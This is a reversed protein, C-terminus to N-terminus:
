IHSKSKRLAARASVSFGFFGVTAFFYAIVSAIAAGVGGYLPILFLNLIINCIAGACQSQLSLPYNSSLVFWKSLFARNFIFLCGIIHIQLIMVSPQYDAGYILTIATDAFLQTTFILLIAIVSSVIFLQRKLLWYKERANKYLHVLKPMLVNAVLAPLVYWFESLKAAAAYYAVDEAGLMSGLMIQDIKLYIVAALGSLVLWKSQYLLRKATLQMSRSSVSQQLSNKQYRYLLLYGLGLLIYELGTLFVWVVMSQETIIAILLLLKATFQVTIRMLLTKLVQKKSLFYFEIINLANGVQLAILFACLWAQKQEFNVLAVVLAIPLILIACSVRIFIASRLYHERNNPYLSFYKGCINNLGMQTFILFLSGFAIIISYSGFLEPGAYRALLISNVFSIALIIFRETILLASNVWNAHKM